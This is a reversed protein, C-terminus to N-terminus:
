ETDVTLAAIRLRATDGHRHHAVVRLDALLQGPLSLDLAPLAATWDDLHADTRACVELEHRDGSFTASHWATVRHSEVALTTGARSASRALARAFRTVSM